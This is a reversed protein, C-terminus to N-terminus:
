QKSECVMDCQEKSIKHEKEAHECCEDMTAFEADCLGCVAPVAAAGAGEKPECAMDCQEKSIKHDKEAHECCEDMTAFEADCLGCVAPVAAAAAKAAEEEAKKKAEFEEQGELILAKGVLDHIGGVQVPINYHQMVLPLQAKDIACPAALYNVGHAEVVEKVATARPLGGKMRLEMLEETLLGGGGGCCFTREKTVSPDMDHFNNCVQQIVYRTEEVLDGARAYNCPDHLTVVVDDNRSKDINKLKGKRLLDATFELINMFKFPLPGNMAEMFQRAARWAHGCEGFIVLKAGIKKATEVVRLNITKMDDYSFFLGFNAAESAYTSMTWDAGIAHFVKAVGIMTDTNTFLDASPPLYLIDAKEKDVPIKVDVGTTEKIEEELFQCNYKFAPEPIGLNNGHKYVQSIVQTVYKPALGVSNLVERGAMTIEAQDIGYPCFVSCRRCESCQYFYKYWENKLIEPTLKQAGVLSGFLKGSITFHARYVKRLLEARGVPTNKPDGTGIFYHCQKICAGCRVCIDLYLQVSKREKRMRDLKRLAVPVMEHDPLPEKPIDTAMVEAFEPKTLNCVYAEGAGPKLEVDYMKELQEGM